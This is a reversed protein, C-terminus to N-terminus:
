WASAPATFTPVPAYSWHAGNAYHSSAWPSAWIAHETVSTPASAAFAAKVSGFVPNRQLNQAVFQAAIVLNAYSGYGGGGGSGLGNNLPNNRNWWDNPGNEQRMWRVLVTVNADSMPWGGYSLVMKAFDYNTGSATLSTIGPLASYRDRTVPVTTTQSVTLTQGHAAEYGALVTAASPPAPPVIAFLAALSLASIAACVAVARSVRRPSRPGTSAGRSASRHSPPRHTSIM